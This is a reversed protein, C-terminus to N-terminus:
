RGEFIIGDLEKIENFTKRADTIKKGFEKLKTNFEENTKAGAFIDFITRQFSASSKISSIILDLEGVVLEFMNIKRDLLYLIHAEITREASFNFINVDRLQGLRHIRGIRQELKMPNWPLDYNILNNCFQLNRGEGGAETSILVKGNNRFYEIAEDKEKYNLGGHFTVCSIGTEQLHEKLLSQTGRFETFIIVKDNMRKLLDELMVVKKNEKIKLALTALDELREKEEDKAQKGMKVLTSYAARASSSALKQLTILPLFNKSEEMAMLYEDRVFTTVEDYFQKEEMSMKISVTHVNRKPFVIGTTRRNNRIMVEGLRQKLKAPNKPMRQDQMFKKKFDNFTNLQGPKLLTIMNYLERLNNQVPTATLMLIYKKKIQDVFQWNLTTSNKLKHAEDVIIMDYQLKHIELAHRPRKATDLSAVVRDIKSWKSVNNNITFKVNFKIKLEDVWQTLLSAPALILVKKVLGRLMYEKLVLGAEITKGLGVEDALLAKGRMDRLIKLAAKQQHDFPEWGRLYKLSNLTEFGSTLSIHTAKTNLDFWEKSDFKEGKLNTLIIENCSPFRIEADLFEEEEMVKAFAM